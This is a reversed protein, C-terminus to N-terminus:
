DKEEEKTTSQLRRVQAELWRREAVNDARMGAEAYAGRAADIAGSRELLGARVSLLRHSHAFREDSELSALEALGALPGVSMGLAAARGLQAAPGQQLRVLADYLALIQPWDTSSADAAAAHVAAIAAQIAIPSLPGGAFADAALQRGERIKAQDWLSRDQDPLAILQGDADVRAGTRADSLLMLALVATTEQDDPLAQRLMRTLRIAEAMLEAHVPSQGITPAHGETFMLYLTMRVAEARDRLEHQNPWEFRRGADDITRKARTIRRSMAAESQFFAAAIQATTLGCVARLTLAVQSVPQVAPHCCLVLLALSDDHTSIEAGRPDLLADHDERARRAADSRVSDIYRRRAVTYLWARVDRPRGHTPWSDFAEVLAEQVADECAAFNGYRRVLAATVLPIVARVNADFITIQAEPM